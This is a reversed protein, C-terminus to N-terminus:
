ESIAGCAGAPVLEENWVFFKLCYNTTTDSLDSPIKYFANVTETSILGSASKVIDTLRGNNYVALYVMVNKDAYKSNTIEAQACIYEVGYNDVMDAISTQPTKDLVTEGDESPYFAHVAEFVPVVIEAGEFDGNIMYETDGLGIEEGESNYLVEKVSLADIYMTRNAATTFRLEVTENTPIFDISLDNWVGRKEQGFYSDLQIQKGDNFDTNGLSIYIANSNFKVKGTLRYTKEKSLNLKQIANANLNGTGTPGGAWIKLMNNGDPAGVTNELLEISAEKGDTPINWNSYTDWGAVNELTYQGAKMGTKFTDEFNGNVLLEEGTRVINGASDKEIQKVSLNDIWMTRNAQAKFSLEVTSATPTFEINLDGWVGGTFGLNQLQTGQANQSYSLTANSLKVFTNNNGIKVKGTLLYQKTTDLGNINQAARVNVADYDSTAGGARLKLMGRGEPTGIVDTLLEVSADLKKGNAVYWQSNGWGTVGTLQVSTNQTATEIVNKEFDGNVLLEEGYRTVGEADTEVQKVSLNDIYIMRNAGATFRLEVTSNTPKFTISLDNWKGDSEAGGFYARLEQGSGTNHQFDTNGLYFYALNSSHWVKGTLVYTEGVTLGAIKQIAHANLNPYNTPAGAWIKLMHNGSPIEVTNTTDESSIVDIGATHETDPINWNSNAWGNVNTLTYNEASAPVAAFSLVISLTVFLSFLKKM